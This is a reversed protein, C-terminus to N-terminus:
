FMVRKFRVILDRYDEREQRDCFIWRGAKENLDRLKGIKEFKGDRGKHMRKKTEVRFSLSSPRKNEQEVVLMKNRAQSKIAGAHKTRNEM